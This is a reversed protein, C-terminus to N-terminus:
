FTDDDLVVHVLQSVEQALEEDGYSPDDRYKIVAKVIQDFMELAQLDSYHAGKVSENVDMRKLVGKWHAIAETIQKKTYQKKM